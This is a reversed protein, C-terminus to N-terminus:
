QLWRLGQYVGFSEVTSRWLSESYGEWVRFRVGGRMTHRGFESIGEWSEVTARGLASASWVRLLPLSLTM